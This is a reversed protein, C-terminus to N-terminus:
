DGPPPSIDMENLLLDVCQQMSPRLVAKTDGMESLTEKSGPLDTIQLLARIRAKPPLERASRALHEMEVEILDFGGSKLERIFGTTEQIPSFVSRVKAGEVPRDIWPPVGSRWSGPMPRMGGEPLFVAAPRLYQGIRSNQSLGGCNGFVFVNGIGKEKVLIDLLVGLQDGYVNRTLLMRRTKGESDRFLFTSHFLHEDSFTERPWEGIKRSPIGPFPPNLWRDVLRHDRIAWKSPLIRALSIREDLSKLFSGHFGVMALDIEGPSVHSLANRYLGAVESRAAHPDTFDFVRFGLPKRGARWLAAAILAESHLTRTRGYIGGGYLARLSGDPYEAVFLSTSVYERKRAIEVVRRAGSDLIHRLVRPRTGCVLDVPIGTNSIVRMAPGTLREEVYGALDVISHPASFDIAATEPSPPRPSLGCPSPLCLASEPAVSSVVPQGRIVDEPRSDIGESLFLRLWGPSRALGYPGYKVLKRMAGPSLMGDLKRLDGEQCAKRIATSSMELGPVPLLILNGDKRLTELMSVRPIPAGPRHMVVLKMKDGLCGSWNRVVKELSDSGFLLYVRAGPVQNGAAHIIRRFASSAPGERDARRIERPSLLQISSNGHDRLAAQIIEARQELSTMGPKSPNRANPVIYLRDLHLSEFASQALHIHGMHFPDFTGAFIGLALDKGSGPCAMALLALIFLAPLSLSCRLQRPNRYNM